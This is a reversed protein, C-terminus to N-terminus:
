APEALAMVIVIQDVNAVLVHERGRSARTLLGFRPEVREIFGEDNAAPRIWVRDGAAVVNREDSAMTKLLRRVACRFIRGGAAEVVSQLGHVRLVRGPVCASDLARTDAPEAGAVTDAQQIITRKRSLDGKARVREKSLTADDHGGHQQFSRTWDRPRPPKSRNKRMEVRVKKKKAMGRM